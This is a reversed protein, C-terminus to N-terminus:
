GTLLIGETSRGLVEIRGRESLMNMGLLDFTTLAFPDTNSMADSVILITICLVSLPTAINSEAVWTGDPSGYYRTWANCQPCTLNHLSAMHKQLRRNRFVATKLPVGPCVGRTLPIMYQVLYQRRVAMRAAALMWRYTFAARRALDLGSLPLDLGGWHNLPLSWLHVSGAM